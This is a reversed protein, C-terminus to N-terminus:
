DNRDGYHKYQAAVPAYALILPKRVADVSNDIVDVLTKRILGDLERRTMFFQKADDATIKDIVSQKASVRGSSEITARVGELRIWHCGNAVTVTAYVGLLGPELKEADSYANYDISIRIGTRTERVFHEDADENTIQWGYQDTREIYDYAEQVRNEDTIGLSYLAAGDSLGDLLRQRQQDAPEDETSYFNETIKEIIRKAAKSISNNDELSDLLNEIFETM